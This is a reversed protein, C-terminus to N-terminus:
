ALTLGAVDVVAKLAADINLPNVAQKLPQHGRLLQDLPQIGRIVPMGLDMECFDLWPLVGPEKELIAEVSACRLGIGVKGAAAAILGGSSPAITADAYREFSGKVLTAKELIAEELWEGWTGGEQHAQGLIKPNPKVALLLPMETAAACSLVLELEQAFRTPQGSTAFLVVWKGQAHAGAIFREANADEAPMDAQHFGIAAAAFGKARAEEAEKEGGTLIFVPKKPDLTHREYAGVVDSYIMLPTNLSQATHALEREINMPNSSGVIVAAPKDHEWPLGEPTLAHVPFGAKEVEGIAPGEAYIKVDVGKAVLRRAVPLPVKCSALDKVGVLVLLKAEKQNAGM